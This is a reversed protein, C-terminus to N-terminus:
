VQLQKVPDQLDLIEEYLKFDDVKIILNKDSEESTFELKHESEEDRAYDKEVRM